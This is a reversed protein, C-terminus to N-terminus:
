VIKEVTIGQVQLFNAIDTDSWKATIGLSQNAGGAVSSVGSEADRSGLVSPNRAGLAITLDGSQANAAGNGFLEYVIVGNRAQNVIQEGSVLISSVRAGGYTARLMVSGLTGSEFRRINVTARVMNNIGLVSGPITTSFISTEAVTSRGITSSLVSVYIKPTTNNVWNVGTAVSSNVQLIQGDVGNALKTLVSSSSAVLLDGKTYSTQGTGGKNATQVHGGGNSDPSRVNYMLTGVVSSAGDVGIVAEVQGLASSVTNHLASHSPNDLRQTTSPRPFTSLTSPFM